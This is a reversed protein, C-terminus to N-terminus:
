GLEDLMRSVVDQLDYTSRKASNYLDEFPLLLSLVASSEAEYIKVGPVDPDDTYAYIEVVYPPQADGDRTRVFYGFRDTRYAFEERSGPLLGWEVEGAKTRELLRNLITKVEDDTLV